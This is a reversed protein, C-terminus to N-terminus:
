MTGLAATNANSSQEVATTSSNFVRGCAGASSSVASAGRKPSASILSATLSSCRTRAMPSMLTFAGAGFTMGSLGIGIWVSTTFTM